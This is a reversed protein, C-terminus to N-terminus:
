TPHTSLSWLSPFAPSVMRSSYSGGSWLSSPCLLLLLRRKPPLLISTRLDLTQSFPYTNANRLFSVLFTCPSSLTPFHVFGRNEVPVNPRLRPKTPM